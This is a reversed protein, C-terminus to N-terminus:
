AQRVFWVTAYAGLSTQTEAINMVTIAHGQANLWASVQAAVDEQLVREREQTMIGLKWAHFCVHQILVPPLQPPTLSTNMISEM